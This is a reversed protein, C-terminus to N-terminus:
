EDDTDTAEEPDAIDDLERPEEPEPSRRAVCGASAAAVSLGQFSGTVSLRSGETASRLHASFRGAMAAPGIAQLVVTGSDGSFGRISTEAFWRLAVASAPRRNDARDPRFVPYKGAAVSDTPYLVLAIGTDGQIARVELLRLSDCWEAIAPAALKGTDAGTWELALSGGGRDAPGESSCAAAGMLAVAIWGPRPTV